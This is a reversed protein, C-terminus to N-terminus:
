PCRLHPVSSACGVSVGFPSHPYMSGYDLGSLPDYSGFGSADMFDPSSKTHDLVHELHATEM